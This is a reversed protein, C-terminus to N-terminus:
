PPDDAEDIAEYRANYIGRLCEEHCEDYLAKFKPSSCHGLRRRADEYRGRAMLDWAMRLRDADSPFLWSLIGM